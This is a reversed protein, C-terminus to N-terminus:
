RWPFADTNTFLAYYITVEGPETNALRLDLPTVLEDETLISVGAGELLTIIKEIFHSNKPDRGEVLEIGAAGLRTLVAYPGAMSLMVGAMEPAATIGLCFAVDVNVDTTEELRGLEALQDILGQYPRAELAEGVFGFRPSELSGYRAVIVQRLEARRDQTM